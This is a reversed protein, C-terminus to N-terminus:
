IRAEELTPNQDLAHALIKLGRAVRVRAAGETIELREAVTAYPLEEILRLELAERNARSLRQLEDRLVLRLGESDALDEIRQRREDDLQPPDIGLRVLATREATAHRFYGALQRRAITYLWGAAEKESTGRFRRRSTFAQAFTEATLDLAIDPDCVRRVMYALLLEVHNRYFGVFAEPDTRSRKLAQASEEVM